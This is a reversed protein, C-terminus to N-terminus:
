AVVGVVRHHFRDHKEVYVLWPDNGEDLVVAGRWGAGDRDRVEFV